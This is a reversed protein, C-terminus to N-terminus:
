AKGHFISPSWHGISGIVEHVTFPPFVSALEANAFSSAKAETVKRSRRARGNNWVPPREICLVIAPCSFSGDLDAGKQRAAIKTRMQWIAVNGDMFLPEQRRRRRLTAKRPFFRRRGLQRHCLPPNLDVQCSYHTIQYM